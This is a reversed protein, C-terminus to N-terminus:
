PGARLMIRLILCIGLILGVIGIAHEIMTM